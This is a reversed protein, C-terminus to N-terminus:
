MKVAHMVCKQQQEIWIIFIQNKNKTLQTIYSFLNAPWISLYYKKRDRSFRSHICNLITACHALYVFKCTQYIRHHPNQIKTSWLVINNLINYLNKIKCFMRVPLRKLKAIEIQITNIKYSNSGWEWNRRTHSWQVREHEACTIKMHLM